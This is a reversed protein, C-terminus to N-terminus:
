HKSLTSFLLNEIDKHSLDLLSDCLVILLYNYKPIKSQRSISALIGARLKRKIRNRIVAKKNIKKSISIAFKPYVAPKELYKVLLKRSYIKKGKKAILPILHPDLRYQTPLM